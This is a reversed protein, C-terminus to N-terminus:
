HRDEHGRHKSRESADDPRRSRRHRERSRMRERSGDHRRHRSHTDRESRSHRDRSSRGIETKHDHRRLRKEHFDADADADDDKAQRRRKERRHEEKQLARLEEEREENVKRREKDLQRVKAAAMKMMALPDSADLRAAERAKRGPDDRGFVNKSPAVLASTSDGDPAAYWPKGDTLGLGDKGAANVLRMRYQDEEERKKRAAEREFDQNNEKRRNSSDPAPEFLSIHGTSDVLAVEKSWSKKKNNNAPDDSALERTARQGVEDRERVLRMEFDTDDEGPRKRKRGERGRTGGPLLSEWDRRPSRPRQPSKRDLDEQEETDEPLPPPTEGRLIALRRKADHEQMRQEEAEERARAEAEDRHVRAINDANYLNWSKKGLLHLPM